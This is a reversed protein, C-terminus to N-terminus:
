VLVLVELRRLVLWLKLVLLRLLYLLLHVDRVLSHYRGPQGLWGHRSVGLGSVVLFSHFCVSIKVFVRWPEVCVIQCNLKVIMIWKM